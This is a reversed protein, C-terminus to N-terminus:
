TSSITSPVMRAPSFISSPVATLRPVMSRMRTISAALMTQSFVPWLASILNRLSIGVPGSFRTASLASALFSRCHSGLTVKLSPRFRVMSHYKLVLSRSSTFRMKARMSVSRYFYKVLIPADRYSATAPTGGNNKVLWGDKQLMKAPKGKKEPIDYLQPTPGCNMPRRAGVLYAKSSRPVAFDLTWVRTEGADGGRGVGYESCRPDIAAPKTAKKIASRDDRKSVWGTRASASRTPM